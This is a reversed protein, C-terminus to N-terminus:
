NQKNWNYNIMHLTTHSDAKEFMNIGTSKSVSFLLHFLSISHLVILMYRSIM